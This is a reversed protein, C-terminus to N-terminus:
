AVTLLAVQSKYTINIIEKSGFYKVAETGSTGYVKGNVKVRYANRNTKEVFEKVTM